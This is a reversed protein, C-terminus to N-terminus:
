HCRVFHAFHCTVPKLWSNEAKQAVPATICRSVRCPHGTKLIRGKDPDDPHHAGASYVRDKEHITKDVPGVADKHTASVQAFAMVPVTIVFGYVLIM